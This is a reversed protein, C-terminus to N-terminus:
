FHSFRKPIRLAGLEQRVVELSLKTINVGRLFLGSVEPLHWLLTDSELDVVKIGGIMHSTILFGAKEDVKIRHVCPGSESSMRFVASGKGAWNRNLQFIQYGKFLFTFM